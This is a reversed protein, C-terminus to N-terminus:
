PVVGLERLLALTGEVDSLDGLPVDPNDIEALPVLLHHTRVGEVLPYEFTEGAFYQQAAQSLMFRIFREANGTNEATSLIGAGAVMILAGPGGARPHYNRATFGDGAEALRRLLYYHNVFGVDIEAVSAAEVQSSNNPYVKPDNAQIGQLWRGTKEQGWYSRMGTVMTLFSGNTPAWGIRGKWRPDVFDFIDDPLDSEALNETSYVVTRARGSLGVWKARPSRAWEPVLELIGDPLPALLTEVAGLGGPDQAFFLDAPSRDGEELLLVALASTSGYKVQIDIGTADAFQRVIPEVLSESRGSYVVLKGPSAPTATPQPQATSPQPPSTSDSGCAALLLALGIAIIASSGPIRM